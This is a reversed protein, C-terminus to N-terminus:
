TLALNLRAGLVSQLSGFGLELEKSAPQKTGLQGVATSDMAVLSSQSAIILPEPPLLQLKEAQLPDRGRWELKM